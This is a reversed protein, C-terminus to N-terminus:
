LHDELQEYVEFFEMGQSSLLKEEKKEDIKMFINLGSFYHKVYAYTTESIMPMIYKYGTNRTIINGEEDLIGYQDDDYEKDLYFILGKLDEHNDQEIPIHVDIKEDKYGDIFLSDSFLDKHIGKDLNYFQHGSIMVLDNKVYYLKADQDTSPIEFFKDEFLDYISDKKSDFQIFRNSSIIGKYPSSSPVSLDSIKGNLNAYHIQKDKKVYLLNGVSDTSIDDYLIPIDWKQLKANYIGKKYNSDICYYQEFDTTYYPVAGDFTVKEMARLEYFEYFDLESSITYVFGEEVKIVTDMENKIMEIPIKEPTQIRYVKTERWTKQTITSDLITFRINNEKLYTITNNIQHRIEFVSNDDNKRSSYDHRLSYFSLDHEEFWKRSFIKSTKTIIDYMHVSNDDRKLFFMSNVTRTDWFESYEEFKEIVNLDDDYLTFNYLEEGDEMILFHNDDIRNIKSYIPPVIYNGETNIVGYLFSDSDNLRGKVIAIGNIFTTAEEFQFPIVLEGEKDVFGYVVNAEYEEPHYLPFRHLEKDETKDTDTSDYNSGILTKKYLRKEMLVKYDERDANVYLKFTNENLNEIKSYDFDTYNELDHNFVAWKKDKQGLFYDGKLIIDDFVADTYYGNYVLGKLGNKTYVAHGDYDDPEMLVKGDYNYCVYVGKSNRVWYYSDNAYRLGFSNKVDQQTRIDFFYGVENRELRIYNNNYGKYEAQLIITEGQPVVLYTIDDNPVIGFGKLEKDCTIDRKMVNVIRGKRDVVVSNYLIYYCRLNQYPEKDKRSYEYGRKWSGYNDDFHVAYYEKKVVNYLSWFSYYNSMGFGTGGFKRNTVEVYNILWNNNKEPDSVWNGNSDIVGSIENSIVHAYGDIFIQAEDFHFPIVTEGKLNLYGWKGNKMASVKGESPVDIMTYEIPIVIKGDTDILGYKGKKKVIHHGDVRLGVFDANYFGKFELDKLKDSTLRNGDSTFTNIKPNKKLIQRYIKRTKNEVSKYSKIYSGKDKSLMANFAQNFADDFSNFFKDLLADTDTEIDKVFKPPTGIPIMSDIHAKQDDDIAGLGEFMHKEIKPIRPKSFYYGVSILVGIILFITISKKM